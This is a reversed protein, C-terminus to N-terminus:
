FFGGDGTGTLFFDKDTLVFDDDGDVTGIFFIDGYCTGSQDREFIAMGMWRRNRNIFVDGDVTVSHDLKSIAMVM